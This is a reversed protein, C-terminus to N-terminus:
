KACVACTIERDQVYPLCPLSGCEAETPYFLTGNLSTPSGAFDPSADMCLFESASQQYENAMIYGSYQLTWGSPCVQTGPVMLAQSKATECVVCRADTDHKSVMSALGYGNAEIEAGYLLAGNQNGANFEAWTPQDTLCLTNSGSGGHTYHKGAIYGTYV